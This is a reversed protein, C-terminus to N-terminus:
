FTKERKMAEIFSSRFKYKRWFYRYTLHWLRYNLYQFQKKANASSYYNCWGTLLSNLIIFCTETDKTKNFINAAKSIINELKEKNIPAFYYIKLKGHSFYIKFQYGLFDFKEFPLDKSITKSLNLKLGRPTLFEQAANIAIKGALESYCFIIFDDAFRALYAWSNKITDRKIPLWSLHKRLIYQNPQGDM